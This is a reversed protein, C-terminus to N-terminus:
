PITVTNSDPCVGSTTYTVIYSLTDSTSLRSLKSGEVTESMRSIDNGENSIPSAVMPNQSIDDCNATTRSRQDNTMPVM